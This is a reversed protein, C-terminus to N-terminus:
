LTCGEHHLRKAEVYAAHAQDATDFCGLSLSKGAVGIRSTLSVLFEEGLVAVMVLERLCDSVSGYGNERAFVRLEDALEDNLLVKVPVDFKGIFASSLRMLDFKTHRM